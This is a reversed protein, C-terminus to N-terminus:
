YKIGIGTTREPARPVAARVVARSAESGAIGAQRLAQGLRFRVDSFVKENTFCRLRGEGLQFDTLGTLGIDEYIDNERAKTSKSLDAKCNIINDYYPVTAALASLRELKETERIKEMEEEHSKQRMKEGMVITRYDIREKNVKMREERLENEKEEAKRREEEEKLREVEMGKKYVEVEGKKAECEEKWRKIGEEKREEELKDVKMKEMEVIKLQEERELRLRKLVEAQDDKILDKIKSYHEDNFKRVIDEKLVEIASLSSKTLESVSRDYTTRLDKLKVNVMKAKSHDDLMRRFGEKPVNPLSVSLKSFLRKMGGKKGGSSWGQLTKDFVEKTKTKSNANNDEDGNENDNSSDVAIDGAAEKKMKEWEDRIERFKKSLSSKLMCIELTDSFGSNMILESVSSPLSSDDNENSNEDKQSKLVNLKSTKIEKNLDNIESAIASSSDNISEKVRLILEAFLPKVLKRAESADSSPNDDAEPNSSSSGGDDKLLRMVSSLETFKVAYSSMDDVPKDLVCSHDQKMERVEKIMEPDANEDDALLKLFQSLSSSTQDHYQNQQSSLKKQDRLWDFQHSTKQTAKKHKKSFKKLKASLKDFREGGGEAEKCAIDQGYTNNAMMANFNKRTRKAQFRNVLGVKNGVKPLGLGQTLSPTSSTSNM